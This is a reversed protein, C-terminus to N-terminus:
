EDLDPTGYRYVVRWRGTRQNQYWDVGCRHERGGYRKKRRRTTSTEDQPTEEEAQRIKFDGRSGDRHTRLTKRKSNRNKWGRHGWTHHAKCIGARPEMDWGFRLAKTRHWFIEDYAAQAEEAETLPANLEEEDPDPYGARALAAKWRLRAEYDGSAAQRELRRINDDM